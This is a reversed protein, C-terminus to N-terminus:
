PLNEPESTFLAHFLTTNPPERPEVFLPIPTELLDRPLLSVGAGYATEIRRAIVDAPYQMESPLPAFRLKLAEHTTDGHEYDVGYLAYVPAIISVCGVVIFRLTRQPQQKYAYAACRFCADSTATANGITFEPLAQRIDRLLARWQEIKRLEEEWRAHLRKHEPSSDTRFHYDKDSRWYNRAIALLQEASLSM